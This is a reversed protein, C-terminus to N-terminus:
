MGFDMVYQAIRVPSLLNQLVLSATLRTFLLELRDSRIQDYELLGHM